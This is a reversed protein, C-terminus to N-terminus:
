SFAMYQGESKGYDAFPNIPKRGLWDTGLVANSAIVGNSAGKEKQKAGRSNNAEFLMHNTLM